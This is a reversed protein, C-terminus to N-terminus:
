FGMQLVRLHKPQSDGSSSWSWLSQPPRSQRCGQRWKVNQCSLFCIQELVEQRQSKKKRWGEAAMGVNNWSKAWVAAQGSNEYQKIRSCPADMWSWHCCPKLDDFLDDSYDGPIFVYIGHMTGSCQLLLEPTVALCFWHVWSRKEFFM